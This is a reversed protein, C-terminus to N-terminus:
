MRANGSKMRPTRNQSLSCGSFYVFAKEKFYYLSRNALRGDRGGLNPPIYTGHGSIKKLVAYQNRAAPKRWNRFLAGSELVAADAVNDLLDAAVFHDHRLGGLRPAM